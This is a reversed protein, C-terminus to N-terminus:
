AEHDGRAQKETKENFLIKIHRILHDNRELEKNANITKKESEFNLVSM